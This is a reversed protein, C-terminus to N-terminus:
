VPKQALFDNFATACTPCLYLSRYLGGIGGAGAMQSAALTVWGTPPPTVPAGSSPPGDVDSAVFGDRDCTFTTKSTMPM